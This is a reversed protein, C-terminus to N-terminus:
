TRPPYVGQLAICFNLTLYPQLNNHPQDGGAPTLANDSLQTLPGPVAYQGIAVGTALL